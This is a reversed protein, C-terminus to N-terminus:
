AAALTGFDTYGEAGGGYYASAPADLLPADRRLREVLDPNGIFPRGFSVMDARGSAVADIALQRGYSNNAIHAM